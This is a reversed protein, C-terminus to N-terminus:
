GGLSCVPRREVGRRALHLLHHTSVLRSKWGIICGRTRVATKLKWYRKVRKLSTAGAVNKRRASNYSHYSVIFLNNRANSGMKKPWQSTKYSEKTLKHPQENKPPNFRLGKKQPTPPPTSPLCVRQQKKLGFFHWIQDSGGGRGTYEVTTTCLMFACLEHIDTSSYGYSIGMDWLHLRLYFLSYLLLQRYQVRLRM